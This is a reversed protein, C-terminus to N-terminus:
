ERRKKNRRSQPMSAKGDGALGAEVLLGEGGMDAAAIRPGLCETRRVEPEFVIVGGAIAIGVIAFVFGEVIEERGIM